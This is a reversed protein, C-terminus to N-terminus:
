YAVTPPDIGVLHWENPLDPLPEIDSPEIPEERWRSRKIVGMDEWAQLQDELKDIEYVTRLETLEENAMKLYRLKQEARRQKQSWKYGEPDRTEARPVTMGPLYPYIRHRCSPHFLGQMIADDLTPLQNIEDASMDAYGTTNALSKDDAHEAFTESGMREAWQLQMEALSAATRRLIRREWPRCRPCEAPVDSVIVLPTGMRDAVQLMGDLYARTCATRIAMLGYGHLSWRRGASDEFYLLGRQIWDNAVYRLADQTSIIGATLQVNVNAVTQRFRDNALRLIALKAFKDGQLPAIAASRFAAGLLYQGLMMGRWMANAAAAVGQAGSLEVACRAIRALESDEKFTDDLRRSLWLNVKHLTGVHWSLGFKEDM